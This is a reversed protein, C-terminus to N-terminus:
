HILQRKLLHQAITEAVFAHGNANWHPDERFVLPYKDTAKFDPLLNITPYDRKTDEFYRFYEYQYPEHLGYADKEWNDPCEKANWHHFRPTVALAFGAGMKASLVAIQDINGMTTDFFARTKDLPHRYIFFRNTERVGNVDIEFKFYDNEGSVDAASERRGGGGL